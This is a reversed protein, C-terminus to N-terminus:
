IRVLSSKFLYSFDSVKVLLRSPPCHIITVNALLPTSVECVLNYAEVFDGLFGM